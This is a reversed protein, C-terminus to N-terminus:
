WGPRDGPDSRDTRLSTDPPVQNNRVMTGWERPRPSRPPPVLRSRPMECGYGPVTCRGGLQNDPKLYRDDDAQKDIQTPAHNSRDGRLRRRPPRRGASRRDRRLAV